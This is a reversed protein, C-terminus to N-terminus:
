IKKQIQVVILTLFFAVLPIQMPFYFLGFLLGSVLVLRQEYTSRLLSDVLLWCSLSAGVLGLEFVCQLWDSHLELWVESMDRGALKQMLPGYVEFSGLGGGVWVNLHTFFFDAALRYEDLRDSVLYFHPNYFYYAIASISCTLFVIM